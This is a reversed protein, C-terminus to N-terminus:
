NTYSDFSYPELLLYFGDLIQRIRDSSLTGIKRSLQSRDVTFVQSTNVVSQKPLNAEGSRLLINGPAAARKLNSTLACVIVTSINSNNFDDNQIVVHPHLYGPASGVPEGLDVWYIDGQNIVM